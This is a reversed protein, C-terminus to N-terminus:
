IYRALLDTGWVQSLINGVGTIDVSDKNYMIQIEKRDRHLINTVFIRESAHQKIQKVILEFDRIAKELEAIQKPLIFVSYGTVSYDTDTGVIKNIIDMVNIQPIKLNNFRAYNILKQNLNTINKKETYEVLETIQQERSPGPISGYYDMM